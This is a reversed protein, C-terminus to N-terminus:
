LPDGAGERGRFDRIGGGEEAYSRREKRFATFYMTQIIKFAM